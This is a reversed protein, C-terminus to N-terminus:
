KIMWYGRALREGERDTQKEIQQKQGERKGEVEKVREVGKKM